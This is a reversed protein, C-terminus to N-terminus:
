YEPVHKEQFRDHKVSMVENYTVLSVHAQTDSFGEETYLSPQYKKGDLLDKKPKTKAKKKKERYLFCILSLPSTIM